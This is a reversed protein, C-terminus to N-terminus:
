VSEWEDRSVGAQKLIERLLDRDNIDQNPIRVRVNDRQMFAHRTGPHPGTFELARFAAILDSRKVPGFRPM